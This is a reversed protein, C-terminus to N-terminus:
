ADIRAVEQEDDELRTLLDQVSHGLVPHVFQPEIDCIPQLVFRRKHMRPHPLELDPQKLILDDFFILDLDLIRPGFRLAKPGQGASAQVAHTLALLAHAELATEIRFAANVFWNQATFDVPATRYFHSTATLLVDPHAATAAIGFRCNAFADGMNSGVSLYVTHRTVGIGEGALRRIM